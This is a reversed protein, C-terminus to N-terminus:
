RRNSGKLLKQMQANLSDLESSSESEDRSSRRSSRDVNRRSMGRTKREQKPEQVERRSRDVPRRSSRREVEQEPEEESEDDFDEKVVERRSTKQRQPIEEEYEEEPEDDFDEKVVEKRLPKRMVPKEEIEEEPEEEIEEEEAQEDEIEEQSVNGKNMKSITNNLDNEFEMKEKQLKSSEEDIQRQINDYEENSNEKKSTEQEDIPEEDTEDESQPPTSTAQTKVENEPEATVTKEQQEEQQEQQLPKIVPQEKISEAVNEIVVPEKEAEKEKEKIKKNEEKEMQKSTKRIQELESEDSSTMEYLNENTIEGQQILSEEPDLNSEDVGVGHIDTLLAKLDANEQALSVLKQNGLEKAKNTLAEYLTNAYHKFELIMAQEVFLRKEEIEKNRKEIEKQLTDQEEKFKATAQEIDKELQEQKKIEDAQQKRIYNSEIRNTSVEQEAKLSELNERSAQLKRQMDKLTQEFTKKYNDKEAEIANSEEQMRRRVKIFTECEKMSRELVLSGDVGLEDFDYEETAMSNERARELEEEEVKARKELYQQLIPIGDKIEKKTFLIEYDVYAPLTTVAKTLNREYLPFNEYLCAYIDNKSAKIVLFFISYFIAIALPVLLALFMVDGLINTGAVHTAYVLGIAFSLLGLLASFISFNGMNKEISSTRLPKDICSDVNIYATPSDERNLMYVQWSSRLVEPVKKMKLNFEVLNEEDIYPKALFYKNLRNVSKLIRNEYSFRVLFIMTIIALIMLGLFIAPWFWLEAIEKGVEHFFDKVTTLLDSGVFALQSM